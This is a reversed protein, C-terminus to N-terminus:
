LKDIRIAVVVTKTSDDAYAVTVTSGIKIDSFKKDVAQDGNLSYISTVPTIEITKEGSVMKITISDEKVATIIGQNANSAITNNQPTVPGTYRVSVKTGIRLQNSSIEVQKSDEVMFIAHQPTISIIKEGVDTLLTLNNNANIGVVTGEASSIDFSTSTISVSEKSTPSNSIKNKESTVEPNKTEGSVSLTSKETSKFNSFKVTLVWGTVLIILIIVAVILTKKNEM